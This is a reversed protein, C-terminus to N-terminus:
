LAGYSGARWTEEPLWWLVGDADRGHLRPVDISNFGIGELLKAVPGNDARTQAFVCQCNCRDFPYSFIQWILKRTLWRKSITGASIEITGAEPQWNHWVIGGVMVGKCDIVGVAAANDDFRRHDGWVIKAVFNCVLGDHEYLLRM